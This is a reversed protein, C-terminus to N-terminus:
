NFRRTHACIRLGDDPMLALGRSSCCSRPVLTQRTRGAPPPLRGGVAQAALKPPHEDARDEYPVHAPPPRHLEAPCAAQRRRWTTGRRSRSTPTSSCRTRRGPTSRGGRGRSFDMAFSGASAPTRSGSRSASGAGRRQGLVLIQAPHDRLPGADARVGPVACSNRTSAAHLIGHGTGRRGPQVLETSCSSRAPPRCTPSTASSTGSRARRETPPAAGRGPLRPNLPETIRKIAGGKGAADRGEFLVVLRAGEVRVWTQM